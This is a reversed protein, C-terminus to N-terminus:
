ARRWKELEAIRAELQEVREILKAKEPDICDPQKLSIDLEKAKQVDERYAAILKKIEELQQFIAPDTIILPGMVPIPAPNTPVSTGPVARWPQIQDPYPILPDYHDHVM